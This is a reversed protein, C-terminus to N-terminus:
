LVGMIFVLPILLFAAVAMLTFSIIIMYYAWGPIEIDPTEFLNDTLYYKTM